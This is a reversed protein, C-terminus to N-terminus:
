AKELASDFDELLDDLDELGVSVRVLGDAIGARRRAEADMQRHTTSAAHGVLTHAGGLSTAIWALGLSDCFRKGGEVGGKVEVALMGGCGRVLLREAVARDPHSALAPYWVREVKPHRELFTALRSASQCHRDMRLALTVLGRLSLWAEFPAMSGGTEIVTDRLGV